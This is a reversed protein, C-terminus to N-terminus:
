RSRPSRMERSSSDPPYAPTYSMALSLDLRSAVSSHIHWCASRPVVRQLRRAPRIRRQSLFRPSPSFIVSASMASASDLPLSAAEAESKPSGKPALNESTLSLSKSLLSFESSVTFTYRAMCTMPPLSYEGMDTLRTLSDLLSFTCAFGISSPSHSCASSCGSIM